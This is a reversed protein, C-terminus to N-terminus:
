RAATALPSRRVASPLEDDLALAAIGMLVCVAAAGLWLLAPSFALAAAGLAPGVANGLQVTTLWAAMYRGRIAPPALDSVLPGQVVGHICEGLAFLAVGIFLLSSALWIRSTGAAAFIVLWSFAWIAGMGALAQMRRRGRLARTVPFQLLVIAITNVVFLLGIVKESSGVNNKAFLPLVSNLLAIGATVFAFNVAILAVFTRDRLVDAYRGVKREARPVHVPPVLSLSLAFFISTAASLVFVITFTRPDSTAVILGALLSGLAIGLNGGVRQVAYAAPRQEPPTLAALMGSYAPWYAGRGIGSVAALALAEWPVRVLPFAGFGLAVLVLAVAATTRGGIRDYTAGAVVGFVLATAFHVTPVLASAELSFGRVNHLYILLFPTVLGSGVANVSIGLNLIWISRPLDPVAARVRRVRAHQRAAVTEV